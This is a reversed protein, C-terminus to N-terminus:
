SLREALHVRYEVEDGIAPDFITCERRPHLRLESLARRRTLAAVERGRICNALRQFFLPYRDLIRRGSSAPFLDVSAVRPAGLALRALLKIQREAGVIM